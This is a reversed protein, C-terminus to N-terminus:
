EPDGSELWHSSLLFYDDLDVRGSGDIDSDARTTAWAAALQSYDDLGVHNSDNLDGGPLLNAGTFNVAANAGTFSAPLRKRLHWATKASLHTTPWQVSDLTFSAVGYGDTGPTFNLTPTWTALVTGADDTAKLTVSRTGLGHRAPGVYAEMAVQGSVQRTQVTLTATQSIATGGPTTVVVRYAGANTTEAHALTLTANTAGPLAAAGFYWQFSPPSLVTATVTFTAETGTVNTRSQPQATIFPPANTGLVQLNWSVLTSTYLPDLDAIFLSWRGNPNLGDFASLLAPRPDTDLAFAPDTDRGDPAWSGSLPGGLPATADGSLALRYSHIDSNTSHDDLTVSFGADSYGFPDVLTKGARNLLVAHGSDHVLYAFLDGNFGGSINLTVNVDTIREITTAVNLSAVVGVPSDDTIRQNVLESATVSLADVVVVRFGCAAVNGSRDAAACNVQNTGVPFTSGSPPLCALNTVACNDTATVMFVVNSRNPQGPDKGFMMDGVCVIQPAENDLLTVTFGCQATNGSSDAATCLVANTGVAFLSGSPPTCALNTVTWNDTATVNYSVNSRSCQGADTNTFLMNGPCTIQPSEADLVTVTFSCPASNGSGDAATCNVTTVGAAFTSGSPPACSVNVVGSNDSASPAYTVNSRTCQGADTNYALNSPCTIQPNEADRVTVTFTCSNTNASADTATCTVVNTGAAFTAGSPPVCVVVPTSCNDTGTVSFSVNSRSNRGADTTFALNSSCTIVPPTADLVLVFNTAYAVNGASDRVGLVVRNSGLALLANAAVSQTVTVSGCNDTAIIHNTGTFDPMLATCNPGANLSVNTVNFTIAPAQADHVTITFGCVNTNGSSDSAVCVVLTTGLPFAAGSSPTCIISPSPDCNDVAVANFTAVASCQNPDTGVFMNTPCAITPPTGDLVTLLAPASTICGLVNTIQVSYHTGNNGSTAHIVALANNTEGALPANELLWQYHLPQTGGAVVSFAANSGCFVGTDLPQQVISPATSAGLPLTYFLASGFTIDPSGASYNHMEVALVNDGAVLNTILDGSLTFVYACSADGSSCNYSTALTTNAIVTPAAAMFARKIEVGNLYFVAGDDLYNSFTLTAGAPANGFNFHTRFYYTPWAKASSSNTPLKTSLPLFQLSANANTTAYRTDAWLVGAGASWFSDDYSPAKWNIGDLNNTAYKFVQTLDFLMGESYNKTQFNAVSMYQNTGALSIVRYFYTTGALLGTLTVSHNTTLTSNLASFTGYNTTTGYEVQATANSITRWTITANTAGTGALVNNIFLLKAFVGLHSGIYREHNNGAQYIYSSRNLAVPNGLADAVYMSTSGGGDMSVADWAGFTQLWWGTEVDLAGTSYGSQRGDITMLYLYRKDQSVGYATRPQAQHITSDPYNVISAPGINVGNTLIPYFGGVATYIGTTNTGPPSNYFAFVPQKNTTFMLSANRNNGDAASVVTGASIMLGEVECAVGESAPDSGGPNGDYFNANVAVQVGYTHIMNSVSLSLTERSEAVYSSARPTTLLQVDPDTLDVRVCRVIQLNSDTYVVGLNTFVTGATNTGAAYDVGKFLPIWPGVTMAARVASSSSLLLVAAM